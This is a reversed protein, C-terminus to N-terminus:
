GLQAETEWDKSHYCGFKGWQSTTNIADFVIGGYEKKTFVM